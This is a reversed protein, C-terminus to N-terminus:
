RMTRQGRGRPVSNRPESATPEDQAQFLGREGMFTRKGSFTEGIIRPTRLVTHGVRFPYRAMRWAMPSDDSATAAPNNGGGRAEPAAPHGPQHAAFAAGNLVFAAALAAALYSKTKM